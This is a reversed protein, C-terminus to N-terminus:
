LLFYCSQLRHEFFAVTSTWDLIEYGKLHYLFVCKHLNAIQTMNYVEEWQETKEGKEREYAREWSM